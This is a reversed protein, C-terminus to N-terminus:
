VRPHLSCGTGFTGSVNELFNDTASLFLTEAAAINFHVSMSAACAARPCSSSFALPKAPMAEMHLQVWWAVKDARCSMRRLVAAQFASVHRGIDLSIRHADADAGSRAAHAVVFDFSIPVHVLKEDASSVAAALAHSFVSSHGHVARRGNLQLSTPPGPAPCGARVTPADTSNQLTGKDCQSCQRLLLVQSTTEDVRQRLAQQQGKVQARRTVAHQLKVHAEEVLSQARLQQEQMSTHKATAYARAHLDLSPL